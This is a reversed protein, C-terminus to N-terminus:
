PCRRGCLSECPVGDKDKDLRGLGCEKLYFCAEECSDMDKCFRKSGCGFSSGGTLGVVKQTMPEVPAMRGVEPKKSREGARWADPEIPNPESWLGIVDSRATNQADSYLVRDEPKQEKEYKKFHWAYGAKVMEYNIDQDNLLIVGIKRNYKDHKYWDVCVSKSGILSSLHKKAANGYPQASEPADIGALRIKHKEKNADLITVTDGDAVSIVKGDLKCQPSAPQNQKETDPLQDATMAVGAQSAKQESEAKTQAAGLKLKEAEATAIKVEASLREVEKKLQETEAKAQEAENRASQNEDASNQEVQSTDVDVITPSISSKVPPSVETSPVASIHNPETKEPAPLMAGVIGLSVFSALWWVLVRKRSPLKIWSPKILGALLVPQALVIVLALLGGFLEM